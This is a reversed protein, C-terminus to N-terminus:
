TELGPMGLSTLAAGGVQWIAGKFGAPGIKYGSPPQWPSEYGQMM